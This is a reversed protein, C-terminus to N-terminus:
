ILSLDFPGLGGPVGDSTASLCARTAAVAVGFAHRATKLRHALAVVHVTELRSNMLMRQTQRKVPLLRARNEHVGHAIKEMPVNGGIEDLANEIDHPLRVPM